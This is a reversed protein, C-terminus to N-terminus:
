KKQLRKLVLIPLYTPAQKIGLAIFYSLEYAAHIFNNIVELVERCETCRLSNCVFFISSMSNVSGQSHCFCSSMWPDLIFRWSYLCAWLTRCARRPIHTFIEPYPQHCMGLCFIWAAQCFIYSDVTWQNRISDFQGLFLYKGGFASHPYVVLNSISRSPTNWYLM